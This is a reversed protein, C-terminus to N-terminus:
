ALLEILAAGNRDNLFAVHDGDIRMPLQQTEVHIIRLDRPAAGFPLLSAEICRRRAQWTNRGRVVPWHPRRSLSIPLPRAPAPLQVNDWSGLM